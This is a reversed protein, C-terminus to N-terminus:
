SERPHFEGFEYLSRDVRDASTLTVLREYVDRRIVLYDTRTEPDNLLVPDGGSAEVARKLEPTITM